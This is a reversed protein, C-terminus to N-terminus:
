DKDKEKTKDKDATKEKVEDVSGGELASGCLAAEEPTLSISDGERYEKGDRRLLHKVRYKM